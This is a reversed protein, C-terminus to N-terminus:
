NESVFEAITDFVVRIRRSTHLERHTVLWVPVELPPLSPLAEELVPRTAAIDRTVFGLGLGREILALIVSGSASYIRFHGRTVPIGMANYTEVLRAQNEFGIFDADALDAPASPRGIRDLYHAAGFLHASTRGIRKAILDGHEPRAHRVAIDAERRIIDLSANAPIIEIEIGPARERVREIAGPLYHIAFQETATISVHGDILESRGTAALSVRTAADGMARVHELLALGSETLDMSRRGREFLTVGLEAELGSVQRSLTPQTLGLARAAASLSGEEATALFARM